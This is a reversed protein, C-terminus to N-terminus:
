CTQLSRIQNRSQLHGCSGSQKRPGTTAAYWLYLRQFAKFGDGPEAASIRSAAEGTTKDVLIVYLDERLNIFQELSLKNVLNENTFAWHQESFESQMQDLSIKVRKMLERTQPYTQTLANILKDYWEKFENKDNGLVKLNAVM